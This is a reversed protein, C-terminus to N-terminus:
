REEFVERERRSMSRASIVRIRDERMTYVVTLFRGGNTVGYALYREEEQSHAPDSRIVPDNFFIEEAEESTVRHKEWSKLLNGADWDFGAFEGPDHDRSEERAM